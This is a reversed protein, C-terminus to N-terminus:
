LSPLDQTQGSYPKQQKAAIGLRALNDLPTRSSRQNAALLNQLHVYPAEADESQIESLDTELARRDIPKIELLQSARTHIYANLAKIRDDSLKYLPHNEFEFTLLKRLIDHHRLDMVLSAQWKFTRGSAPTYIEDARQAFNPYDSQMDRPFLAFNHDYLPALGLLEGTTNDRLLSYNGAHRDPNCIVADFIIMDRLSEFVGDSIELAAKLTNPFTSQRTASYYPVLATNEDNLLTCTSALKGKWWDLGYSVHPLECAAAVQAALFESYPEMNDNAGGLEAGAKYLCLTGDDARRWAKAFTGGTTWETSLGAKHRQSTTYGTYAVIQLVSDLENKYLNVEDWAKEENAHDIWFADNVSLGRCLDIVGLTDGQELGVQALIANVFKRNKPAVRTKLWQTIITSNIDGLLEMPFLARNDELVNIDDIRMVGLKSTSAVFSVLPLDYLKVIYEKPKTQMMAMLGNFNFM